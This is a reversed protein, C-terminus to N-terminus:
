RKPFQLVVKRTTFVGPSGAAFHLKLVRSAAPGSLEAGEVTLGALDGALPVEYTAGSSGALQLELRDRTANWQESVIKLNSSIAGMAPPQYPYVLGFDNRYRLRITATGPNVPVTISVHQDVENPPAAPRVPVSQGNVEASLIRARLSFAPSFELQVPKAGRHQIQLTIQGPARHWTLSLNDPTTEASAGLSINQIAFDNWNAPVHPAFHVTSTLADVSLGMMGRLIPSIVMASSWIQHPTSTVVQTYYRGSLVETTRGLTGDFALQANARLNLYGPLPRHYRYEAVSAWGTFLPWISGFHYGSPDYLPDRESLIRMGWDAQQDPAALTDLYQEGHQQDLLGFWMPVTGLVSPRDIVKGNMDLAYGYFNKQPSWFDTEIKTQLDTFEKTLSDAVDNKGLLRALDGLSRLCEASLGAQYLETSVPPRLPGGEIWGHGVGENRPLGNAGYTSYLFEYARWLSDWKERAFGVDGSSRVYDAAGIVYLPTADASAFGYPYATFWDKVLGVSQPIEHPVRGDARQYKALFELATRTTAFDGISNLALSTWMSDRGFFWGFGPRHNYGSTNYGAVLGRGAFPDDVLGQVTSIRAWDYQTQLDRDPLSLSVTSALYHEYYQRAEQELQPAKTLLKQYLADAEQQQKFSAAIAFRYTVDGKVPPGFLFTDSQASTYDTAFALHVETAGPTGAVAFFRHEEEGFRFAKLNEDWSSYTAGSGAPWMWAVDPSFSASAQLPETSEIQITVVAGTENLPAFWIECVSFTDSVYHVSTSEPRTIINHPLTEAPIIRDAARFSLHFDRFLKLPFIWAEFNGSENGLIASHPGVADLFQWDRGAGSLTLNGSHSDCNSQAVGALTGLTLLFIVHPIFLRLKRASM